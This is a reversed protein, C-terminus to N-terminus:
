LKANNTFYISMQTQAGFKTAKSHYVFIFSERFDAGIM